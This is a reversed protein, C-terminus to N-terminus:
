IQMLHILRNTLLLASSKIMKIGSTKKYFDKLFEERNDFLEIEESKSEELLDNLSTFEQSEIMNRIKTALKIIPSDEAQRVIKTLKFQKELKFVDNENNNSGVPLLQFPDGIFLITNVRGTTITELIFKYVEHSIMSSEDVILLSATAPSQKGRVVTYKEEGTAYNYIPEIGLFSHITKCEAEVDEALIMDRLVKTAKHTPASVVISDNSYCNNAKLKDIIYKTIQTTLISKGTGAQGTLSLLRDNIDKSKYFTFLNGDITNVIEEFVGQQHQTLTVKM